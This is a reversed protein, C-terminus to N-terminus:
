QEMPAAQHAGDRHEQNVAAQQPSAVDTLQPVPAHTGPVDGTLDSPTGARGDAHQKENGDPCLRHEVLGAPLDHAGQALSSRDAMAPQRM